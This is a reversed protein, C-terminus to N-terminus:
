TVLYVTVDNVIASPSICKSCIKANNLSDLNRWAISHSGPPLESEALVEDFPSYATAVRWLQLLLAMGSSILYWLSLKLCNFLAFIVSSIEKRQLKRINKEQRTRERLQKFEDALEDIAVSLSVGDCLSHHARFLALTERNQAIDHNQFQESTIVGSEGLAGSSLM